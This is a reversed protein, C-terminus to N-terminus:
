PCPNLGWAKAIAIAPDMEALSPKNAATGRGIKEREDSQKEPFHRQDRLLHAVDIAPYTKIKATAIVEL